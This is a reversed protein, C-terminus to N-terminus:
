EQISDELLSFPCINQKDASFSWIITFYTCLLFSSVRHKTMQEFVLLADMPNTPGNIVSINDSTLYNQRGERHDIVSMLMLTWLLRTVNYSFKGSQTAELWNKTEEHLRNWALPIDVQSTEPFLNDIKEKIKPFKM